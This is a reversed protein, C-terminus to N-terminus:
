TSVGVRLRLCSSHRALTARGRPGEALLLWRALVRPRMPAERGLLGCAEARVAAGPTPPGSGGPGIEPCPFAPLPLSLPSCSARPVSQTVATGTWMETSNVSHVRTSRCVLWEQARLTECYTLSMQFKLFHLCVCLCVSLHISLRIALWPPVTSTM